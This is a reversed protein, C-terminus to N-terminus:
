CYSGLLDAHLWSILSCVYRHQTLVNVASPHNSCYGVYLAKMQPMLNLFFSGVRQQNEPLRFFFFIIVHDICVFSPLLYPNLLTVFINRQWQVFGLVADRCYM